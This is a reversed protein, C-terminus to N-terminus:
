FIKGADGVSFVLERRATALPFRCFLAYAM